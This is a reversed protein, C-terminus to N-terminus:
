ENTVRDELMLKEAKHLLNDIDKLTDFVSVSDSAGNQAVRVIQAFTQLIKQKNTSAVM